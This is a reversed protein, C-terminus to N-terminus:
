EVKIEVIRWDSDPIKSGIGKEIRNLARIAKRKSTYYLDEDFNELILKYVKM